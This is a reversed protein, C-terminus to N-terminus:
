TAVLKDFGEANSSLVIVIRYTTGPVLSPDFFNLIGSGDTTLGTKTVVHAGTTQYVHATIGTQSVLLTGTNNKLPLTTLKGTASIAGTGSTNTQACNSATLTTILAASALGGDFRFDRKFVQYPNASISAVEADSLARSWHLALYIDCVDTAALPEIMVSASAKSAAVTYAASAAQKVGDIFLNQLGVNMNTRHVVVYPQDVVYNSDAVVQAASGDVACGMFKQVTGTGMSIIAIIWGSNYEGTSVIPKLTTNAVKPRIFLLQTTCGTAPVLPTDDVTFNGIQQRSAGGIDNRRWRGYKDIGVVNYSGDTPHSESFFEQLAVDYFTRTPGAIAASFLGATVPNRRDISVQGPELATWQSGKVQIPM